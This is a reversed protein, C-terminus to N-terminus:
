PRSGRATTSASPGAANDARVELMLYDAGSDRRTRWWSRGAAPPGLGAGAGDPRRRDDHRRRDRRGRDLGAYGAVRVTRSPSWTPAARAGALESWWSAESWADDAFLEPELAALVPSTGGRAPRRLTLPVPQRREATPARRGPPAPLAARHRCRDVGAAQRRVALDALAARTSTSRGSGRRAAARPLAPAGRGVVPAGDLLEALTPRRDVGAARHGPGRGRPTVEFRAWYVEKRRADTAVVLSQGAAVAGERWAQHALADLSCLGLVPIGRALAFTRATVLGVRLGTFPGPGLGVVVDTVDAPSRGAQACCPRSRRPSTSATGEPTSPRQVRGRVSAGDHVAVTIASTSTDIALLLM